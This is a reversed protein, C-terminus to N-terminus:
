WLLEGGIEPRAAAAPRRCEFAENLDLPDIEVEKSPNRLDSLPNESPEAYERFRDPLLGPLVLVTDEGVCEPFVLAVLAV